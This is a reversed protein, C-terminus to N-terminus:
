HRFNDGFFPQDERSKRLHFNIRQANMINRIKQGRGVSAQTATGCACAHLVTLCNPRSISDAEGGGRHDPAMEKEELPDYM